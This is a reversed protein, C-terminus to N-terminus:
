YQGPVLGTEALQAHDSAHLLSWMCVRNAQIYEPAVGADYIGHEDNIEYEDQDEAYDDDDDDSGGGSAGGHDIMLRVMNSTSFDLTKTKSNMM